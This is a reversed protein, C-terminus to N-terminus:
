ANLARDLIPGRLTLELVYPIAEDVTVKSSSPKHSLGAYTLIFMVLTIVVGVLIFYGKIFRFISRIFKFLANPEKVQNSSVQNEM